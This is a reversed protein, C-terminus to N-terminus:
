MLSTVESFNGKGEGWKIRLKVQVLLPCMLYSAGICLLYM